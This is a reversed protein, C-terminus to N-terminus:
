PGNTWDNQIYSNFEGALRDRESTIRKRVQEQEQPTLDDGPDDPLDEHVSRAPARGPDRADAPPAAAEGTTTTKEIEHM